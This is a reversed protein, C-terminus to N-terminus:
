GGALEQHDGAPTHLIEPAQEPRSQAPLLLRGALWWLLVTGLIAAYGDLSYHWALMVSGLFTTMTYALFVWRLAGRAVCAYLAPMAVHLSPFASISSAGMVTWWSWLSAAGDLTAHTGAAQMAALLPRFQTDGTLRELLIPGVSSFAGALPVGIIIWILVFALAFRRARERDRSWAQWLIVVAMVPLAYDYLRVLWSLLAPSGLPPLLLVGLPRGGYLWADATALREDWRFGAWQPMYAKWRLFATFFWRCAVTALLVGGVRPWPFTRRSILAIIAMLWISLAAVVLLDAYGAGMYPLPPVPLLYSAFGFPLGLSLALRHRRAMAVAHSGIQASIRGAGWM